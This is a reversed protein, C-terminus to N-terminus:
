NRKKNLNVQEMQGGLQGFEDVGFAHRQQHPVHLFAQSSLGAVGILDLGIGLSEESRGRGQPYRHKPTLVDQGTKFM